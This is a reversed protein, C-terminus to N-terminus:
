LFESDEVIVTGVMGQQEHNGVSCFYNYEGPENFTIEGITCPSSCADLSFSGDYAVVDHFGSINDWIVTDGTNIILTSPSYYFTGAEVTHMTSNSTLEISSCSDGPVLIENGNIDKFIHDSICVETTGSNNFTFNLNTLLGEGIPITSGSISTGIVQGDPSVSVIFDNEEAIGGYANSLTILNLNDSVKFEFQAIEASNFSMIGLSEYSTNGFYIDALGYFCSGDDMNADSNYNEADPDTCGQIILSGDYTGDVFM